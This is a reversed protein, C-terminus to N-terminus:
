PLKPKYSDAVSKSLRRRQTKQTKQFYNSNINVQETSISFFGFDITNFKILQLTSNIYNGYYILNLMMSIYLFVFVCTIRDLRTFSSYVPRNFISLWLHTEMIHHKANKQVLYKLETKQPECAVFLERDIKGDGKELALWQECIFYFKERTQLDKIIIHKLYWSANDGEGSNDHWVRIYKLPGM